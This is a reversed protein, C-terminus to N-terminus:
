KSGLPVDQDIFRLTEISILTDTGHGPGTVQVGDASRTIQADSSAFDYQVVDQGGLGDIINDGANGILINDHGNGSLGSPKDGLLRANVLYQSKHTYPHAADFSMTFTGEFGPDIRAMYTVNDSLFMPILAAGMPDMRKVDERTKAVYIDWMGGRGESWAGWYGYYSDLASVIYEQELSGEQALEDLWRKTDRDGNGWLSLALANATAAAIEAQYTEKLPGESHKTGIGTDHVMHFIEEFGADRQEYDNEVYARSGETPFELAYLPQGQLASERIPSDGDAGGPMVLVAGNEGMANAVATKDAGYKSGPVDTLYFDLISYARLLQEDSMGDTAVLLIRGGNPTPYALFKSYNRRYVRDLGSLDRQIMTPEPYQVYHPNSATDAQAVGGLSIALVTAATVKSFM